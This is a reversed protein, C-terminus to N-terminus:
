NAVPRDLGQAAALAAPAEQEYNLRIHDFLPKVTDCFQRVYREPIESFCDGLFACQNIKCVWEFACEDCRDTHFESFDCRRSKFQEWTPLGEFAGFLYRADGQMQPCTYVDGFADVNFMPRPTPPPAGRHVLARLVQDFLLIKPRGTRWWDDFIATTQTAFTAPDPLVNLVHDKGKDAPFVPAFNWEFPLGKFFEYTATLDAVSASTITSKVTVREHDADRLRLLNAMIRQNKGGRQTDHGVVVTDLSTFLHVDYSLFLQLLDDPLAWLNTFVANDFSAPLSDQFAFMDAFYATGMLTPEGGHWKTLVRGTGARDAAATLIRRTDQASLSQRAQVEHIYCYDCTFNCRYTPKITLEVNRSM